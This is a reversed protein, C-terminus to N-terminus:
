PYNPRVGNSTYNGRRLLKRALDIVLGRASQAILRAERDFAAILTQTGHFEFERRDVM